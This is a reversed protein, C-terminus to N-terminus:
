SREFRRQCWYKFGQDQTLRWGRTKLKQGVMHNFYGHALVLVDQGKDAREILRDAVLAARREAEARSEQGQHHHFAHWWFRSVVGWFRPSMKFWGPMAPPPLPAEILLEDLHVDRNGAIAAATERARRRTSAHIEGVSRAVAILGDPPVQGLRLGGLEYRGWWDAYEASTLLCKRSLAPEGHRALIIAGNRGAPASATLGSPAAAIPRRARPPEAAAMRARIQATTKM